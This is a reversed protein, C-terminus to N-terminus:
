GGLKRLPPMKGFYLRRPLGAKEADGGTTKKLRKEKIEQGFRM